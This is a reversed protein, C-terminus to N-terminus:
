YQQLPHVHPLHLGVKLIKLLYKVRLLPRKLLYAVDVREGNSNIVDGQANRPIEDLPTVQEASASRSAPALNVVIDQFGLRWTRIYDAYISHVSYLWSILAEPDKLPIRKHLSKLRELNVGIDVIPKTNAPDTSNQVFLGATIASDSKSLVSTLLVPIVGDVLTKLERMYKVEDDALERMLDQVTARDLPTRTTRVSRASRISKSRGPPATDPLSLMSVLDSHKTLRRKLGPKAASEKRSVKSRSLNSASHGTRSTAQTLTTRSMDSITEITSSSTSFTEVSAITSLRHGGTTLGQRKGLSQYSSSRPRKPEEPKMDEAARPDHKLNSELSISWSNRGSHRYDVPSRNADREQLGSVDPPPSSAKKPREVSSEGRFADFVVEKFPMKRGTKVPSSAARTAPSRRLGNPTSQPSVSEVKDAKSSEVDRELPPGFSDKAMPKTAEQKDSVPGSSKRKSATRTRQGDHAATLDQKFHDGEKYSRRSPESIEPALGVESPHDVFPDTTNNLWSEISPPQNLGGRPPEATDHVIKLGENYVRKLVKPVSLSPNRQPKLRRMNGAEAGVPLDVVSGFPNDAVSEPPTTSKRQRRKTADTPSAVNTMTTISEDETLHSGTNSNESRRRHGLDKPPPKLFQESKQRPTQEGGSADERIRIKSSEKRVAKVRNNDNLSGDRSSKNRFGNEMSPKTRVGDDISTIRSPASVTSEGPLEPVVEKESAKRTRPKIELEPSSMDMRKVWDEIKKGVPPNVATAALFNKPIPAGGSPSKRPPSRKKKLMWHDDSIVRKRPASKSRPKSEAGNLGDKSKRRGPRTQSFKIRQRDEEDVSSEEVQVLIEDPESTAADPDVIAAAASAKQWQKVRDKVGGPPQVKNVLSEKM